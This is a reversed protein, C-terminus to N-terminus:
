FMSSGSLWVYIMAASMVAGAIIAYSGFSGMMGGSFNSEEEAVLKQEVVIDEALKKGDRVIHFAITYEGLQTPTFLFSFIGSNTTDTLKVDYNM